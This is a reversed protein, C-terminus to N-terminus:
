TSIRPRGLCTIKENFFLSLTNFFYRKGLTAGAGEVLQGGRLVFHGAGISSVDSPRRPTVTRLFSIKAALQKFLNLQQDPHTEGVHQRM